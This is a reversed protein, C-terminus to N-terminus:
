ASHRGECTTSAIRLEKTAKREEKPFDEPEYFEKVRWM